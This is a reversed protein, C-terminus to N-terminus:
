FTNHKSDERIEYDCYPCNRIKFFSVKLVRHCHPCRCYTYSLGFGVVALAIASYTMIHIFLTSIPFTYRIFIMIIAISYIFMATKRAKEITM